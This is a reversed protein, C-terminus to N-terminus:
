RHAIPGGGITGIVMWPLAPQCLPSLLSLPLPPIGAFTAQTFQLGDAVLGRLGLWFERHPLAALGRRGKQQELGVQLWM